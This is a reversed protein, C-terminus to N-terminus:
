RGDRREDRDYRRRDGGRRDEEARSPFLRGDAAYREFGHLDSERRSRPGDWTDADRGRRGTDTRELATRDIPGICREVEELVRYPALPKELYGCFGAAELRTYPMHHATIALVPIPATARDLKLQRIVTWGDMVPMSLDLLILTPHHERARRLGQDGDAAELIRVGVFRLYESFIRREDPNDEVILITRSM